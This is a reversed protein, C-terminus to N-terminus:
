TLVGSREEGPTEQGYSNAASHSVSTALASATRSVQRTQPDIRAFPDWSLPPRGCRRAAAGENNLRAPRAQPEGGALGWCFVVEVIWSAFQDGSRPITAGTLGASRAALVTPALRWYQRSDRVVSSRGLQLRLLTGAILGRRRALLLAIVVAAGLCIAAITPPQADHAAWRSRGDSFYTDDGAAYAWLYVSSLVLGAAEVVRVVGFGRRQMVVGVGILAVVALAIDLLLGPFAWLAIPAPEM